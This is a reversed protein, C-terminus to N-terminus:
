VTPLFSAYGEGSFTITGRRIGQKFLKSLVKHLRDKNLGDMMQEYTGKCILTDYINATIYMKSMDLSIFYMDHEKMAKLIDLTQQFLEENKVGLESGAEIKKIKIGQIVTVKPVTRTKRLLLGTDDIILYDDDYKIAGIQEREEVTIILTSPLGRSVKAKKIYPNAELYKTISGKDPHYLLNKGPEAHAMNIIEEATFYSNGVVDISDVDFFSSFSFVLMGVVFVIISLIIKTRKRGRKKKDAADKRRKQIKEMVEDYLISDEIPLGTEKGPKKPTKSEVLKEFKELNEDKVFKEDM